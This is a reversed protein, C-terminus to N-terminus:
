RLNEKVGVDHATVASIVSNFLQFFILFVDHIELWLVIM